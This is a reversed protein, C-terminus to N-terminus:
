FVGIGGCSPCKEYKGAIYSHKCEPCIVKDEDETFLVGQRADEHLVPTNKSEDGIDSYDRKLATEVKYKLHPFQKLFEKWGQQHIVGPSHCEHCLYLWNSPHNKEPEEKGGMGVAQIHALQEGMNVGCGECIPNKKKYEAKSMIEDHLVIKEDNLHQRWEVWYNHIDGPKTVNCGSYAIENFVMEIREAMEKTTYESTGRIVQLTVYQEPLMDPYKDLFEKVSIKEHDIIVYEIRKKSRYYNLNKRYTKIIEREGYQLLYAEHLSEPTVMDPGKMGGNQENAQISLLGWYLSNQDLTRKRYHYEIKIKLKRLEGKKKQYESLKTLYTTINKRYIPDYKFVIFGREVNHHYTETWTGSYTIDPMTLGKKEM